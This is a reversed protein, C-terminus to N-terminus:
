KTNNEIDLIETVYFRHMNNLKEIFEEPSGSNEIVDNAFTLKDARAWQSAIISKVSKEDCNDRLKTRSIQIEEPADILLIRNCLQRQGTELLLASVLVTYITQSQELYTILKNQIKPHLLQELWIRENANSFVISRLTQRNLTGDANLIKAGFREAISLLAPEGVQVVERACVDTDIVDIGQDAFFLSAVSKGSGIGGTLGLVWNAM